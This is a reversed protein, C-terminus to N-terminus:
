CSDMPKPLNELLKLSIGDKFDRLSVQSLLLISCCLDSHSDSTEIM